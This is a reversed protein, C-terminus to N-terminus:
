PVAAEEQDDWLKKVPTTKGREMAAQIDADSPGQALAVVAMATIAAFLLVTKMLTRLAQAWDLVM